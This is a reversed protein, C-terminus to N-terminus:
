GEVELWSSGGLPVSSGQFSCCRPNSLYSSDARTREIAHRYQTATSAEGFAAPWYAFPCASLCSALVLSRTWFIEVIALLGERGNFSQRHRHFRQAPPRHKESKSTKNGATPLFAFGMVSGNGDPGSALYTRGLAALVLPHCGPTFSTGRHTCDYCISLTTWCCLPTPYLPVIGAM